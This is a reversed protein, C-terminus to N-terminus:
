SARRAAATEAGARRMNQSHMVFVALVIVAFGQHLAGAWLPVALLLAAIGIVAQISVVLVVIKATTGAIGTKAFGIQFLHFVALALLLYAVMRHTFQVTQINEFLNLWGGPADNLLGSPIFSGDMLPWTNYTMGADLGAVLGGAFLQLFLLILLLQSVLLVGGSVYQYRQTSAPGRLGRAVWLTAAFIFFALTLHVALRYQSVDVRESLGSFVMWWGVFGQLGGLAFLILLKPYLPKPIAKRWAFWVFPLLYVLGILRGFFRHGWEWWYIFQFEALSMGKNQLQYEPIQRYKEFEQLWNAENWPPIAGLLPKWETISLGSDTLRTVGGIIVMIFILFCILYLWLRIAGTNHEAADPIATTQASVTM